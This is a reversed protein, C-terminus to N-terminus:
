YKGRKSGAKWREINGFLCPYCWKGHNGQPRKKCKPCIKKPADYRKHQNCLSKGKKAKKGCIRCYGLQGKMKENNNVDITGRYKKLKSNFKSEVDHLSRKTGNDRFEVSKHCGYCIPVLQKLSKGELVEQSYGRHHVQTAENDCLCCKKGKEEFAKERISVWLPSLLYEQYNKYGMDKLVKNRDQYTQKSM